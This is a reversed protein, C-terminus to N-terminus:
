SNKRIKMWSEDIKDDDIDIEEIHGEKTGKMTDSFTLVKKPIETM